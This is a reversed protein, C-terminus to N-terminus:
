IKKSALMAKARARIRPRAAAPANNIRGLAAKAHGADPIPFSRKPGAFTSAPLQKRAAATLKAM